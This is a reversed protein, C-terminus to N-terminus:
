HPEMEQTGNRSNGDNGCGNVTVLKGDLVYTIIWKTYQTIKTLYKSLKACIKM